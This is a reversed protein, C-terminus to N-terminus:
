RNVGNHGRRNNLLMGMSPVSDIGPITNGWSITENCVVAPTARVLWLDIALVSRRTTAVLALVAPTMGLLVTWEVTSIGVLVTSIGVLVTVRAVTGRTTGVMGLAAGCAIVLITDLGSASLPVEALSGQWRFDLLRFTLPVPHAKVLISIIDARVAIIFAVDLARVITLAVLGLTM